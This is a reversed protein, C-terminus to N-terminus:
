ATGEAPSAHSEGAITGALNNSVPQSRAGSLIAYGRVITTSTGRTAVAKIYREVPRRVECWVVEDSAGVTALTGLLDAYTGGSTDCQQLKIQNNAAPTGFEVFVFVSEFGATDIASSTIDTTGAITAALVPRLTSSQSFPVSRVGM